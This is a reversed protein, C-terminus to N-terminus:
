GGITSRQRSAPFCTSLSFGTAFSACVALSRMSRAFAIQWALLTTQLTASLSDLVVDEPDERTRTEGVRVWGHSERGPENTSEDYIHCVVVSHTLHTLYETLGGQSWYQVPVHPLLQAHGGARLPVRRFPAGDRVELTTRSSVVYSRSRPVM